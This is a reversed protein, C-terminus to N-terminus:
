ITKSCLKKKGMPDKTVTKVLRNATTMKLKNHGCTAKRKAETAFFIMSIHKDPIQNMLFCFFWLDTKSCIYSKLFCLWSNVEYNNLIHRELAFTSHRLYSCIFFSLSICFYVRNCSNQANKCSYSISLVSKDGLMLWTIFCFCKVVPSLAHFSLPFSFHYQCKLVNLWLHIYILKMYSNSLLNICMFIKMFEYYIFM